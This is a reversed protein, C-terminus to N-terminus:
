DPSLSAALILLNDTSFRVPWSALNKPEGLSQEGPGYVIFDVAPSVTEIQGQYFAKVQAEKDKARITEFPHGYFVRRGTQGPIFM